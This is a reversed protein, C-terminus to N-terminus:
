DINSELHHSPKSTETPNNHGNRGLKATVNEKVFIAHVVFPNKKKLHCIIWLGTWREFSVLKKVKGTYIPFKKFFSLPKVRCCLIEISAFWKETGIFNTFNFIFMVTLM